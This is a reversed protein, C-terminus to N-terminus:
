EWHPPREEILRQDNQTEDDGWGRGTEDDTIDPLVVFDDEWGASTSM